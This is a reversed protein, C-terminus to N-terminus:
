MGPLAPPFDVSALPIEVVVFFSPYPSRAFPTSKDPPSIKLEVLFFPFFLPESQFFSRTVRSPGPFPTPVPMRSRQPLSSKKKTLPLIQDSKSSSPFIRLQEPVSRTPRFVCTMFSGGCFGRTAPIPALGEYCFRPKRL